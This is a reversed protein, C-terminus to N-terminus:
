RWQTPRVCYGQTPGNAVTPNCVFAKASVTRGNVTDSNGNGFINNMMAVFVLGDVKYNVTITVTTRDASLQPAV